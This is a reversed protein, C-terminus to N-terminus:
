LFALDAPLLSCYALELSELPAQLDCLLQCLNGSLQWSGLSLERLSPLMGLQRALCQIEIASEPRLRQGDIDMHELRLSR